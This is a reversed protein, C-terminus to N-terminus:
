PALELRGFGISGNIREAPHAVTGGGFWVDVGDGRVIVSPDCVVKDNWWLGGAIVPSAIKTWTIGDRSRALGLRRVEARDRGTYLMWYEGRMAWVAPEGLGNEDFANPAGLSLVPNTRLKQWHVGDISRAVGLRQRRARDQGLYFMYFAQPTSVVDPDGLSVEDWAGRPGLDLVPKRERTWKRGDASRALAIRTQGEPGAQYWHWYEQGMRRVAGNAAIYSGEWTAPDPSLVRGHKAWSRGDISTALATHWTKGDFASYFNVFGTDTKLVIPNLVDVSGEPGRLLQPKEDIKWKWQPAAPAVGAAPPLQFNAYPVCGTLLLAALLCPLRM